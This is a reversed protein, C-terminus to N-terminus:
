IDKLNSTISKFNENKRNNDNDSLHNNNAKVGSALNRLNNNANHPQNSSQASNIPM